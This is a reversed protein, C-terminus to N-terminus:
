RRRGKIVAIILGGAALLIGHLRTMASWAITRDDIVAGNFFLYWVYLVTGNMAWLLIALAYPRAPRSVWGAWLCVGMLAMFGALTIGQTPTM